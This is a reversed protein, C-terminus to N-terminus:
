RTMQTSRLRRELHAEVCRHAIAEVEHTTPSEMERLAAGLQRGLILRIVRLADASIAAGQRCTRCTAGGMVDFSTLQVNSDTAPDAGCAVCVDVEPGFGELALAKFLFGAVLLPADRDNLSRLAGLVMRYLPENPEHDQALQEAVELITAVRTLRDYDVRINSFTDIVDVQTVKHLDSKGEFFQIASHSGPEVRGGLKSTTKRVGKAIARVKGHNETLFVAIRDAESYKYTRIVIANDNYLM